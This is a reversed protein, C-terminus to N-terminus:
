HLLLRVVLIGAGLLTGVLIQTARQAGSLPSRVAAVIEFLALVVASAWLAATVATSL